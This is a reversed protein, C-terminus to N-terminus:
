VIDDKTVIVPKRWSYDEIIEGTKFWKSFSKAVMFKNDDLRVTMIFEPRGSFELLMPTLETHKAIARRIWFKKWRSTTYNFAIIRAKEKTM